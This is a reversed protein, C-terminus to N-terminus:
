TVSSSLRGQGNSASSPQGLRSASASSRVTSANSRGVCISSYVERTATHGHRGTLGPALRDLKLVGNEGKQAVCLCTKGNRGNQGACLAGKGERWNAGVCPVAKSSQTELEGISERVMTDELSM